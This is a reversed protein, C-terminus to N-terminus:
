LADLIVGSNHWKLMVHDFFGQHLLSVQTCLGEVGHPAEQSYSCGPSVSLGAPVLRAFRHSCASSWPEAIMDLFPGRHKPTKPAVSCGVQLVDWFGACVGARQTNTRRCRCQVGSNQTHGWAAVREGAGGQRLSLANGAAAHRGRLRCAAGEAEDGHSDRGGWRRGCPPGAWAPGRAGWVAAALLAPSSVGSSSIPRPMFFVSEPWNLWMGGYLYSPSVAILSTFDRLWAVM